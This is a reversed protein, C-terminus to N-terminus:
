KRRPTEQLPKEKEEVPPSWDGAGMGPQFAHKIERKKLLQYFVTELLAAAPEHSSRRETGHDNTSTPCILPQLPSIQARGPGPHEKDRFYSFHRFYSVCKSPKEV